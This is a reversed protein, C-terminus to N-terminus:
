VDTLKKLEDPATLLYWLHGPYLFWAILNGGLRLYENDQIPYIKLPELQVDNLWTGNSSGDDKISWLPRSGPIPPLFTLHTNSISSVPVILDNTTSRGLIIGPDNPNTQRKRVPHLFTYGGQYFEYKVMRTAGSDFGGQEQAILLSKDWLKSRVYLLFPYPVTTEFTAQNNKRAEVRYPEIDQPLAERKFGPNTLTPTM